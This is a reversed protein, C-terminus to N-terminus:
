AMERNLRFRQALTAIARLQLQKVSGESKGITEAVERIRMGAGFRLALVRQQDETLDSLAKLLTEVSLKRSIAEEPGTDSAQLMDSLAVQESKGKQRYHDTVVRFAVGFLWGRLTNQPATKDRLASLLRIFVESTLDEAVKPDSVRTVIYRYLPTYYIQHVETLAKPDLARVRALLRQEEQM